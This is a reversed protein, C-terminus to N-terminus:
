HANRALWRRLDDPDEIKEDDVFLLPSTEVGHENFADTGPRTVPDGDYDTAELLNKVDVVQPRDLTSNNAMRIEKPAVRFYPERRTATM